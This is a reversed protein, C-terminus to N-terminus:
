NKIKLKRKMYDNTISFCNNFRLQSNGDDFNILEYIKDLYKEDYIYKLLNDFNYDFIYALHCLVVDASTEIHRYDIKRYKLFDDYVSKSIKEKQFKSSGYVTNVQDELTSLYLIDTKDADRIIRSHFLNNGKLNSSIEPRNHNIIANRIVRDYKDDEIFERILGEEFLIQCGLEGHDVSDKDIFTHYRKIQEFRGIDHLLGIVEALIIDEEELGLSSALKKSLNAVRYIHNVKLKIQKDNIDFNDLYKKLNKTVRQIDIM